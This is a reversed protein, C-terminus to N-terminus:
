LCEIQQYSICNYFDLLLHAFHVHLNFVAENQFIIPLHHHSIFQEVDHENENM